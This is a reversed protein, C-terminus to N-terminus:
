LLFLPPFLLTAGLLCCYIGDSEGVAEYSRKIGEIGSKLSHVFAHRLLMREAGVKAAMMLLHQQKRM